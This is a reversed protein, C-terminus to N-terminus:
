FPIDEENLKQDHDSAYAYIHDFEIEDDNYGAFSEQCIYCVNYKVRIDRLHGGSLGDVSELLIKWGRLNFYGICFDARKAGKLTKNLAVGLNDGSINDFITPM